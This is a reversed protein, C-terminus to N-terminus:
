QMKYSKYYALQSLPEDASLIREQELYKALLTEKGMFFYYPEYHKSGFMSNSIYNIPFLSIWKLFKYIPNRLKRIEFGLTNSRLKLSSIGIVAKIEDRMPHHYIYEALGPLSHKIMHYFMKARQFDDQIPALTSLLRINHLHIKILIDNKNIKTGDSLTLPYGKYITTRVRFINNKDNIYHLRTLLYYLPDTIRWLSLIIRHM